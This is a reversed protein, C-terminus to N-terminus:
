LIIKPLNGHSKTALNGTHAESDMPYRYILNNL